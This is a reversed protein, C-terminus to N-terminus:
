GDYRFAWRNGVFTVLIDTGTPPITSGLNLAFFTGAVTTLVAPGGVVETGLVCIPNCAYYCAATTPYSEVSVTRAVLSPSGWAQDSSFRVVDERVAAERVRLRKADVRFNM